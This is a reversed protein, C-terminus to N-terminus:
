PDSPMAAQWTEADYCISFIDSFDNFIVKEGTNAEGSVYKDGNTATHFDYNSLKWTTWTKVNSDSDLRNPVGTPVNDTPNMKIFFPYGKVSLGLGVLSQATAMPLNESHIKYVVTGGDYEVTAGSVVAQICLNQVNQNFDAHNPDVKSISFSVDVLAM